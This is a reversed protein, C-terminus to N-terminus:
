FYRDDELKRELAEVRKELAEIRSPSKSQNVKMVLIVGVALLFSVFLGMTMIMIIAM